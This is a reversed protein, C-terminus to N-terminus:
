AAEAPLELHPYDHIGWVGGWILGHAEALQGLPEYSKEDWIAHKGPGPDSDVCVDVAESPYVMHRSKKTVGDINTVIKEKPVGSRGLQYLRWQEAQSRWTCTEFLERGTQHAFDEKLALYRRVLEPHADALSRSEALGAPPQRVTAAFTPLDVHATIAAHLADPGAGASTLDRSTMMGAIMGIIADILSVCWPKM